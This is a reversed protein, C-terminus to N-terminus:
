FSCGEEWKCSAMARNLMEQQMRHTEQWVGPHKKKKLLIPIITHTMATAIPRQLDGWILSAVLIKEKGRESYSFVYRDNQTDKYLYYEGGAVYGCGDVPKKIFLDFQWKENTMASWLERTKRLMEDDTLM